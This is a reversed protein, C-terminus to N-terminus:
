YKGILNLFAGQDDYSLDTLDDSFRGFNYGLGAKVNKDIHRYLTTVAGYDTTNATPSRLMRGELLFDWRHPLHIDARVIGLHAQNAVYVGSSRATEVNGIRMGYKGGIYLYPTIQYTGDVSLVHSRQRPGNAQNASNVQDAGPLDYLFGYKFLLNLKDNEVPRYAYGITGEVYDGDLFSSQDSNSIVADFSTQLQWNQNTQWDLGAALLYSQRDRTGDESEELGFATRLHGKLRDDDQYSVGLSIAKRDFDSNDPDIIRGAEVLGQYTWADGEAYTVGYTSTLSRRRGFMDYNSETVATIVDNYKRRAGLVIAGRDDGASGAGEVLREPDLRYGIRYETDEDPNYNLAALAGIGSTGYSVEGSVGTKDNLKLEAGVGLRDNRQMGSSRLATAQGFVFYTHDEDAAYALRVGGDTRRGNYKALGGPDARNVHQVGLSVKWAKDLQVAVEGSLEANKKGASDSYDEYGLRLKVPDSPQLEIFGGIVRQAANIQDDLTSFGAGKNDYHGGVRGKVSGDGIDELDVEGRVRWASAARGIMGTTAKDVITLGGDTSTSRGFGPGESRAVEAELFTTDSHRIRIDAGVLRQDTDISGNGTEERMGTVGVRLKDGLWTQARGGVSYGDVDTAAPTYEYQVVLNVTDSGIAGSRVVGDAGATSPLPKDLIIVGQMYDIRYDVSANLQRSSKVLGTVADRIEIAVTESGTTIDQRKLFYASGGTGRYVDRQPLTGPQAAYLRAETRREGFSTTAQSRHVASAGYLARENQLYNAGNIAAKFNGWMVHSDGRELRVYFKGSTPADEVATSGDGYIPYYKDPDLRRLLQRPNKSDMGKFLNEIDDEGTDASATLLYRGKIKGKLYFALRGKTYVSDYESPDAAVMDGNGFRKGVTLDALAVYFWDNAPINVDRSLNLREASGEYMAVDVNHDGPPLIKQIVFKGSGDVPVSEGLATVSYGQPVNAGYVTVAGGYIPINRIAARDEGYDPARVYGDGARFAHNRAGPAAMFLPLPETEDFRGARDYVRLVYHFDGGKRGALAWAGRGSQDVPVVFDPKGSVADPEDTAFLRIESRAIWSAYNSASVFNVTEGADYVSGADSTRVSLAPKVDFGDFKVQIDANYLEVDSALRQGSGIQDGIIREGDVSVSIGPDSAHSATAMAPAEAGPASQAFSPSYLIATIATGRLLLKVLRSTCKAPKTVISRASKRSTMNRTTM